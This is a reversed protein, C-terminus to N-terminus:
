SKSATKDIFTELRQGRMKKSYRAYGKPSLRTSQFLGWILSFVVCMLFLFRIDEIFYEWKQDESILDGWVTWQTPEHAYGVIYALGPLTVCYLAFNGQRLRRAWRVARPPTFTFRHFLLGELGSLGHFSLIMFVFM